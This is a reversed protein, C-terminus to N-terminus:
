VRIDIYRGLPSNRGNRPPAAPAAAAAGAGPGPMPKIPVANAAGVAATTANATVVEPAATAPRPAARRAASPQSRGLASFAAIVSSSPPIPM